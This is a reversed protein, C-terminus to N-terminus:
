PCLQPSRHVLPWTGHVPVLTGSILCTQSPHWPRTRSPCFVAMSCFARPVMTSVPHAGLGPCRAWWTTSEQPPTPSHPNTAQFTGSNAQMKQSTQIATGWLKNHCSACVSYKFCLVVLVEAGDRPIVIETCTRRESGRPSSSHGTGGEGAGQVVGSGHGKRLFWHKGLTVWNEPAELVHVLTLVTVKLVLSNVLSCRPM